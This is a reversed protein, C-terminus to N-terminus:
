SAAWRVFYYLALIALAVIPGAIVITDVCKGIFSQGYMRM